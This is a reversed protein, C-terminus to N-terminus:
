PHPATELSSLINRMVYDGAVVPEYRSPHEEDICSPLVEITADHNPGVFFPISYRELGTVNLVRHMTSVFRDNSWRSLLDGINIVFAGPIRPVFLWEGHGNRVQLAQVDDPCLITFCEHDTHAGAGVKGEPLAGDQSPYHLIRLLSLPHDSLQAFHDEPLDLAIALAGFLQRALLRMADSYETLEARFSEMGEPWQNGSQRFDGKWFQGNIERDEMTFDFAEHLDGDEAFLAVYGCAHSSQAIDCRMKVAEPQAFFARTTQFAREVLTEPVGHNTLYFFGVQSCADRLADAVRRRAAPDSSFMGAFDVTPVADFNRTLRGTEKLSEASVPDQDKAYAM